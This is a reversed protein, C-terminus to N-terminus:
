QRSNSGTLTLANVAESYIGLLRSREECQRFETVGMIGAPLDEESPEGQLLFRNYRLVAESYEQFAHDQQAM